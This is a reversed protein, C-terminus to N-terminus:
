GMKIYADMFPTLAGDLVGMVDGVQCGTRHDKVLKNAGLMYSRIQHGFSIDTKQEYAEAVVGKRRKMEQDQLKTWLTQLALKKNQNQSRQSQCRVVLGSPLHKVRVATELKNVNQGGAGQSRCTTIELDSEKIDPMTEERIAIVDVSAFSTQKKRNADFPSIHCIRHVGIEGRLHGYAYAGRVVIVCWKIGAEGALEDQIEFEFGMDGLWRLYMRKLRGAWDMADIGGAGAHISLLADRRDEDTFFTQIELAGIRAELGPLESTIEEESALELYVSVDDSLIKIPDVLSKLSKFESILSQATESVTWFAPDAM